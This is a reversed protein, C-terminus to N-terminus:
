LKTNKTVNTAINKLQSVVKSAEGKDNPTTVASVIVGFHNFLESAELPRVGAYAAVWGAACNPAGGTGYKSMSGIGCRLHGSEIADAVDNLAKVFIKKDM